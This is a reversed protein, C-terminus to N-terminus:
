NTRRPRKPCDSPSLIGSIEAFRIATGVRCRLIRMDYDKLELTL